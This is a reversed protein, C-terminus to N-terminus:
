FLKYLPVIPHFTYKIKENWNRQSTSLYLISKWENEPSFSFPSDYFVEVAPFQIQKELIELKQITKFWRPHSQSFNGFFAQAYGKIAPQEKVFLTEDESTVLFSVTQAYIGTILMLPWLFLFKHFFKKKM